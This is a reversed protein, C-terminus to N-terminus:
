RYGGLSTDCSSFLEGDAQAAACPMSPLVAKISTTFPSPIFMLSIDDLRQEFKAKKFATYALTEAIDQKPGHGPEYKLADLVKQLQWASDVGM